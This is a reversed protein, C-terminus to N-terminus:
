FTVKRLKFIFNALNFVFIPGTKSRAYLLIAQEDDAYLVHIFACKEANPAELKKQKMKGDESVLYIVTGTKAHGGGVNVMKEGKGALQNKHSSNSIIGLENGIKVVDSNVFLQWGASKLQKVIHTENMIRGDKQFPTVVIDKTQWEYYYGDKTQRVVYRKEEGIMLVTNEMERIDLVNIDFPTVKEYKSLRKYNMKSFHENETEFVLGFRGPLNKKPEESYYGGIFLDGNTLQILSMSGIFGFEFDDYNYFAVGSENVKIIHICENLSEKKKKSKQKSTLTFYLTGDNTLIAKYFTISENDFEPTFSRSDVIDGDNNLTLIILEKLKSSKDLAFVFHAHLNGDPSTISRSINGEKRGESLSALNETNEITGSANIFFKQYTYEDEKKNYTRYLAVVGGDVWDYVSIFITGKDCDLMVKAKKSLSHDFVVYSDDHFIIFGDGDIKHAVSTYEIQEAKLKSFNVQAQVMMCLLIFSIILTIKKM